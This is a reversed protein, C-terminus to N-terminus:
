PTKLLSKYKSLAKITLDIDEMNNYFHPSIRLNGDRCSTIIKESELAAVLANEDTSRVALMAAHAHAPTAISGGIEEIGTRLADHLHSVYDVIEDMGVALLYELGAVAPYLSPIPPTGSEFRRADSAPDYEHIGMKFIDKAAFWGTSTPILNKTTESKTYMYGVGPAGLMYKLVGGVVFDAGIRSLDLSMAGAGQYSDLLVLAGAKKAAEIIPAIDTLAGNRFCVLTISVLLTEENIEKLIAEVDVTNDSRSPVHTVRAGRREQAHWIQGIAPFENDTTVIRNRKTSFDLASALSSVAASTSTTVAMEGPTVNFLKALLGRVKEQQGAWDGWTSGHLELSNLYTTFSQRVSKAIAGQSCSNLYTVHEFVPFDVRYKVSLDTKVDLTHREYSKM